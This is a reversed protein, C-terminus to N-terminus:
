TKITFEPLSLLDLASIRLAESDGDPVLPVM